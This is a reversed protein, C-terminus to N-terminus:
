HPTPLTLEPDPCIKGVMNESPLAQDPSLVIVTGPVLSLMDSILTLAHSRAQSIVGEHKLDSRVQAMAQSRMQNEQEISLRPGAMRSLVNTGWVDLVKFGQGEDELITVTEHPLRVVITDGQIYSELREVDYSIHFRYSGIGFAGVGNKEYKVPVSRVGELSTIRVISQVDAITSHLIRHTTESARRGRLHASILLGAVILFIATTAIIINRIRSQPSRHSHSTM